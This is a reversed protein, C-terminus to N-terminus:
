VCSMFSTDMRTAFCQQSRKATPIVVIIQLTPIGRGIRKSEATRHYSLDPNHSQRAISALLLLAEPEIDYPGLRIDCALTM